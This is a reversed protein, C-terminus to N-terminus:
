RSARSMASKPVRHGCATCYPTGDQVVYYILGPVIFICLFFICMAVEFPGQLGRVRGVQGSAYFPCIAGGSRHVHDESPSAGQVRRRQESWEAGDLWREQDPAEPSIYWGPPPSSPPAVSMDRDDAVVHM